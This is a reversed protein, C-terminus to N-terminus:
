RIRFKAFHDRGDTLRLALIRCTGKWANQTKWVYTYWDAAADYSLSSGGTSVTEEIVAGLENADCAFM